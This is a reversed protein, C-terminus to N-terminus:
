AEKRITKRIFKPNFIDLLVPLVTMAAISSTFMTIAILLGMYILPNFNSLLLVAFGAAVSVANFIIAKGTTRLVTKEVDQLEETRRRERHYASLFHITYDIGIGIAVSAVMATSVDLKIGSFGMVGFNILVALGLPVIGYLGAVLSRYSIALIIFVLTLSVIISYIQANSILRTIAKEVIAVGASRVSYGEPFEQAVYEDIEEVAKETFVNGTTRLQVIMRARSPELPDDSWEDLNGSYILLYQSILNALEERSEAPYHEPNYPIEYFAAGEYNVERNVLEVLEGATLDHRDAREYARNLMAAFDRYTFEASEAAGGGSEEGPPPEAEEEDAGGGFGSGFEGSGFGEGFDSEEGGSDSGEQGIKWFEAAPLSSRKGGHLSTPVRETSVYSWPPAEGVHMVQNMRKIFDTYSLVKSIEDPYTTELYTALGEMARLIEPNTLDGAEEGAVEINFTRTGGFNERLFRDAARIETGRKFYAILENDVVLKSMGWLAVGTVLLTVAMIRLKRGAFFNYIGLLLSDSASEKRRASSKLASGRALLLAPILTLAVLLAVAVGLATFAGFSRMPGVESTTLAGFGIMTTLGALFVPKGVTRLTHFVIERHEQDSIEGKREDVEDFYHNIIHIGYASGVAIMLVPIVTAVLSLSVELLAMAGITWTSSILVTVIPLIVGGPRRFFIFLAVLVVVIVLPILTAVDNRMNTSLLVAIAPEGALYYNVDPGAHESLVNKIDFYLRERADADIDVEVGILIQTSRFDESYLSEDYSEWSLLKGKLRRLEGPSGEFEEVLPSARMGSETGEIYDTNTMSTVSEANELEEFESTLTRVLEVAEATFISGRPFEIGVTMSVTTGFTEEVEDMAVKDPHDAPVFSLVDNDLQAKPLQFAFFVTIGAITGIVLWPHRLLKRM